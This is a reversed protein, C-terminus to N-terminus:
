ARLTGKSASWMWSKRDLSLGLRHTSKLQSIFLDDDGSKIHEHAEFGGIEAFLSKRYAINRGVGMYPRKLLAASFYQIAIFWTEFSIWRALWHGHSGDRGISPGYGLVMDVEKTRRMMSSIWQKSDPFCDADTCLIWDEKVKSIGLSIADKKGAKGKVQRILKIKENNLAELFQLGDDDSHDDIYYLIYNVYDQDLLLSVYKKLQPLENKFAILVGVSPLLSLSDNNSVVADKTHRTLAGLQVVWFYGQILISLILIGIASYALM